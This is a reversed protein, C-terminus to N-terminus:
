PAGLSGAHPGLTLWVLKYIIRPHYDGGEPSMTRTVAQLTPFPSWWHVLDGCEKGPLLKVAM